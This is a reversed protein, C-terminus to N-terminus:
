RKQELRARGGNDVLIAEFGGLAAWGMPKGLYRCVLMAALVAAGARIGRKWHLRRLTAVWPALLRM